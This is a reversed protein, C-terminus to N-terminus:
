DGLLHVGGTAAALLRRAAYTGTGTGAGHSGLVGVAGAPEFGIQARRITDYTDCRLMRHVALPVIQKKIASHM